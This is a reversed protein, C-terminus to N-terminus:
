SNYGIAGGVVAGVVPQAAAVALNLPASVPYCALEITGLAAGGLTAAVTVPLSGDSAEYGVYGITFATGPVWIWPAFVTIGARGLGLVTGVALGLGAGVLTKLM